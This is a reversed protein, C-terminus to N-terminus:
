DKLLRGAAYAAALALVKVGAQRLRRWTLLLLPGFLRGEKHQAAIAACVDQMIRDFREAPNLHTPIIV